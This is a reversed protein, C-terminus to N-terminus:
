RALTFLGSNPELMTYMDRVIDYDHIRAGLAV